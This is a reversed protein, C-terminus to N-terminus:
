SCVSSYLVIYRVSLCVKAFQSLFVVALEVPPTIPHAGSTEDMKTREPTELRM